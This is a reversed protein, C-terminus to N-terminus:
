ASIPAGNRYSRGVLHQAKETPEAEMADYYSSLANVWKGQAEFSKAEALKKQYAANQAFLGATMFMAVFFIAVRKMNYEEMKENPNVKRMM